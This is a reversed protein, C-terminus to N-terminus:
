FANVIHEVRLPGDSGGGVAVVDFRIRYAGFCRTDYLYRRAAARIRRRKREDVSEAPTGFRDSTRSRVEVFVLIDGDMAVIDIEGEPCRWNRELLRYGLKELFEGAAREAERGVKRRNTRANLREM